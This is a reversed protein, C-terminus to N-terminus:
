RKSCCNNNPTNYAHIITYSLFPRHGRTCMNSISNRFQNKRIDQLGYRLEDRTTTAVKSTNKKMIMKTNKNKLTKAHPYLSFLIIGAEQQIVRNYRAKLQPQYTACLRFNQFSM